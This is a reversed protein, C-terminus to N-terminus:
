KKVEKNIDFYFALVFIIALSAFLIIYFPANLQLPETIAQITTTATQLTTTTASPIKEVIFTMADSGKAVEGIM